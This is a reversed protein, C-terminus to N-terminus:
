VKNNELEKFVKDIDYQYVIASTAFEKTEEDKLKLVIAKDDLQDLTALFKDGDYETTTRFSALNLVVNKIYNAPILCQGGFRKRLSAYQKPTAELSTRHWKAIAKCVDNCRRNSLDPSRKLEESAMMKLLLRLNVSKSIKCFLMEGSESVIPLLKFPETPPRNACLLQLDGLSYGVSVDFPVTVEADTSQALHTFATNCLNVYDQTERKM